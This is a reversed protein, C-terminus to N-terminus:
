SPLLLVVQRTALWWSRQVTLPRRPQPCLCCCLYLQNAAAAAAAGGAQYGAVGALQLYLKIVQDYMM